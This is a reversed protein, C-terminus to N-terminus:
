GGRMVLLHVTDYLPKSETPDEASQSAPDKQNRRGTKQLHETNSKERGDRKASYQQLSM